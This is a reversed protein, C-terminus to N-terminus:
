LTVALPYLLHDLRRDTVLYNDILKSDAVFPLAYFSIQFRRPSGGSNKIVPFAVPSFGLRKIPVVLTTARVWLGTILM